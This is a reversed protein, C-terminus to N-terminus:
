RLNIKRVEEIIKNKVSEWSIKKIMVPMPENEADVFYVLSKLLHYQNSINKGFKKRYNRLLDMLSYYNFIYYLDIFDKKSGRGSIAAIKMLAVDKMNAITLNDYQYSKYLLPYEFKFFSIKVDNLSGNITNLAESFLEYNGIGSLRDIIIRNDINEDSFFDFDISERHGIQLALSTGGVLYYNSIWEYQASKELLKRQKEPLVTFDLKSKM